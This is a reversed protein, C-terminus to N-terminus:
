PQSPPRQAAEACADGGAAGLAGWDAPSDPTALYRTSTRGHCERPQMTRQRLQAAAGPVGALETPCYLDRYAVFAGNLAPMLKWLMWAQMLRQREAEGAPPAPPEQLLPAGCVLPGPLSNNFGGAYWDDAILSKYFSWEGYTYTQCYHLVYPAWDDPRSAAPTWAENLALWSSVMFGSQGRAPVGHRVAAMCFAEQERLLGEGVPWSDTYRLWDPLMRELDGTDLVWPPGTAYKAMAEESSMEPATENAHAYGKLFGTGLDYQQALMQGPRVEHLDPHESIPRQFIFDPDLITVMAEQPQVADLWQQIAPPRSRAPYRDGSRPITMLDGKAFFASFRADDRLPSTALLTQQEADKCGVVIRTLRGQNGVLNWSHDLAVAQQLQYRDCGLTYIFHMSRPAPADQLDVTARSVGYTRQM